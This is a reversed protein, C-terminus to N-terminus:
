NIELDSTDSKWVGGDSTLGMYFGNKLIKIRMLNVGPVNIWDRGNWIYAGGNLGVGAVTKDKAVAITLLEGPMKSWSVGDFHWVSGSKKVGWIDDKSAVAIKELQGPFNLWKDKELLVMSGAPVNYNLADADTHIAILTGDFGCSVYKAKGKKPSWKRKPFDLKYIQGKEGVGWVNNAQTLCLNKIKGPFRMWKKNEFIFIENKYNIGFLTKDEGIEIQSFRGPFRKWKPISIPKELPISFLQNSSAIKSMVENLINLNKELSFLIPDGSIATEDELIEQEGLKGRYDEQALSLSSSILIVFISIKM